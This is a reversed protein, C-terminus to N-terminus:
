IAQAYDLGLWVSMWTVIAHFLSVDIRISPQKKKNQKKRMFKWEADGPNTYFKFVTGMGSM